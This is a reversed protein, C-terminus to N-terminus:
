KADSKNRVILKGLYITVDRSSNYFIKDLTFHQRMMELYKNDRDYRYRWSLLVLTNEHCTQLFTKLLDNFLEEIYIIDAGLVVDYDATFKSWDKTWDLNKVHVDIGPHDRLNEDVVENIYELAIDLDTITVKGGLLAAVIGVIGSGAGLEIITKGSVLEKNKELYECLVIAADWVVAAIGLRKWDQKIVLEKGVFSFTRSAKHFPSVLKEDYLVVAQSTMGREDSRCNDTDCSENDTSVNVVLLFILLCWKSIHGRTVM